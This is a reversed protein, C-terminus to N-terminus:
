RSYFLQVITKPKPLMKYFLFQTNSLASSQPFYFDEQRLVAITLHDIIDLPSLFATKSVQDGTPEEM